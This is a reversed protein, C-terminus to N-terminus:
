QTAGTTYSIQVPADGITVRYADLPVFPPNPAFISAPPQVPRVVVTLAALLQAAEAPTLEFTQGKIELTITQTVKV